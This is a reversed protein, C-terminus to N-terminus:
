EGHPRFRLLRNINTPDNQWAVAREYDPYAQELLKFEPPHVRRRGSPSRSVGVYAHLMEHFVIYRVFYRPVFDQDLAPHVRILDQEEVYSGFRISRRRGSSSPFMGWTIKATVTGQFMQHNLENFLEALDFFDGKQYLYITRRKRPAIRHQNASIFQDVVAGAKNSRPHELWYALATVVDPPADLFM